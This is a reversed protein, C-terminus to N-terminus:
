VALWQTGMREQDGNDLHRLILRVLRTEIDQRAKDSFKPSM